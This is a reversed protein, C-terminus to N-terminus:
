PLLPLRAWSQWSATSSAIIAGPCLCTDQLRSGPAHVKRGRRESRLRGNYAAEMRQRMSSGHAAHRCSTSSPVWYGSSHCFECRTYRSNCHACKCCVTMCAQQRHVAGSANSVCTRHLSPNTQRVNTHRSQAHRSTDPLPAASSCRPRRDHSARPHALWGPKHILHGGPRSKTKSTSISVMRRSADVEFPGGASRSAGGYMSLCVHATSSFGPALSINCQELRVKAIVCQCLMSLATCCRTEV